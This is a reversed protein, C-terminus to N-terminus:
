KSEPPTPTAVKHQGELVALRGRLQDLALLLVKYEQDQKIRQDQVELREKLTTITATMDRLEKRLTEKVEDDSKAKQESLLAREKLGSVMATLAQVEKGLSEAKQDDEKLKHDLVLSREKLTTVTESLGQAEKIGNWVAALRGNFEDKKVLDAQSEVAHNIASRLDGLAANFQNYVTVAALALVSLVTGGCIRWFWTLRDEGKPAPPLPAATSNRLTAAALVLSDEARSPSAAQRQDPRNASVSSVGKRPRVSSVGAREPAAGPAPLIGGDGEALLLLLNRLISSELWQEPVRPLFGRSSHREEGGGRRM